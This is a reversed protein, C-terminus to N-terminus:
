GDRIVTTSDFATGGALGIESDPTVTKAGAAAPPPAKEPDTPATGSACSWSLAISLLVLLTKKMEDEGSLGELGPGRM